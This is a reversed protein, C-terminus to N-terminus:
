TTAPLSGGDQQSWFALDTLVLFTGLQHVNCYSYFFVGESLYNVVKVVYVICFIACPQLVLVYYLALLASSM